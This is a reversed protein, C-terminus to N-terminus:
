ASTKEGSPLKQRSGHPAFSADIKPWPTKTWAECDLYNSSISLPAIEEEGSGLPYCRSHRLIPLHRRHKFKEVIL